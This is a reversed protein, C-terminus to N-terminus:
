CNSNHPVFALLLLSIHVNFAFCNLTHQLLCSFVMRSRLEVLRLSVYEDSLEAFGWAVVNETLLWCSKAMVEVVGPAEDAVGEDFGDDAEADADLVGDERVCVVEEEEELPSEPPAIPPMTPPTM